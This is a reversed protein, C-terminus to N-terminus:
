LAPYNTHAILWTWGNSYVSQWIINTYSDRHYEKASELQSFSLMPSTNTIPIALRSLVWYGVASGEYGLAVPITVPFEYDTTAWPTGVSTYDDDYVSAGYESLGAKWKLGPFASNTPIDFVSVIGDLITTPALYIYTNPPAHPGFGLYDPDEYGQLKYGNTYSVKWLTTVGSTITLWENSTGHLATVKNTQSFMNAELKVTEIRNSNGTVGALAQAVANSRTVAEAQAVAHFLNSVAGIVAQLGDDGSTRASNAAIVAQALANSAAQTRAAANTYAANAAVAIANNIMTRLENGDIDALIIANNTIDGSNIMRKTSNVDLTEAHAVCGFFLLALAIKNM